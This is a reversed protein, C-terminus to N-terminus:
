ASMEGRCGLKKSEAVRRLPPSLLARAVQPISSSLAAHISFCVRVKPERKSAFAATGARKSLGVEDTLRDPGPRRKQERPTPKVIADAVATTDSGTPDLGLSGRLIPQEQEVDM